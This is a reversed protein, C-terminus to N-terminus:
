LLSNFLVQAFGDRPRDNRNRGIEVVRLPLSGSFGAIQSTQFHRSQDVVGGRRRQGVREIVGRVLGNSHVGEAAAGEANGNEFDAIADDFYPGGATVSTEAALVNVLTDHIPQNILELVVLSDVQVAVFQGHLTQAM